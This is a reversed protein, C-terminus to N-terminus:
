FIRSDEPRAWHPADSWRRADFLADDLPMDIQVRSYEERLTPRGNTLQVVEMAIWGKGLRQYREFRVDTMGRPTRALSRVFLLNTRDVWFQKTTTDGADAGVVYVPKGQWTTQHVRSLDYGLSALQAASRAAPQTYVDFGLVLLANLGPQASVLKGNAVSFISDRAYLSGSHQTLDTDIRLRGPLSLAEYWTQVLEGGSPRPITTKQVFTLTRYWDPYRDHMAALLDEGNRIAAPAPAPREVTPSPQPSAPPVATQRHCAALCLSGVIVLCRPTSRSLISDTMTLTGAPIGSEM